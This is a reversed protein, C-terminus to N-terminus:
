GLDHRMLLGVRKFGMKGYFSAVREDDIGVTSGIMARVAGKEQAWDIFTKVLETAVTSGRFHPRVYLTEEHAIKAPGLFVESIRAFMGGVLEGRPDRVIWVNKDEDTVYSYIWIAVKHQDFELDKYHPSEAHMMMAGLVMEPIEEVTLEFVEM